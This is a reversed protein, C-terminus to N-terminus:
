ATVGDGAAREAVASKCSAALAAARAAVSSESNWYFTESLKVARDLVDSVSFLCLEQADDNNECVVQHAQYHAITAMHVLDNIQIELDLYNM